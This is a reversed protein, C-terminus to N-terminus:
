KSPSKAVPNLCLPNLTWIRISLSRNHIALIFSHSLSGFCFVSTVTFPSSSFSFLCLSFTIAVIFCSHLVNQWKDLLKEWRKRETSRWWVFTYSGAQRSQDVAHHATTHPIFQETNQRRHYHLLPTWLHRLSTARAVHGLLGSRPPWAPTIVKTCGGANIARLVAYPRPPMAGRM